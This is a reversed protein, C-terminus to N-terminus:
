GLSREIQQRAFCRTSALGAVALPGKVSVHSSGEWTSPAAFGCVGIGREKNGVRIGIGECLWTHGMVISVESPNSALHM